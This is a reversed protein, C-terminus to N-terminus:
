KTGTKKIANVLLNIDYDFLSFYDTIEKVGGVSTHEQALSARHSGDLVHGERELSSLCESQDPFRAAALRGDPACDDVDKAGHTIADLDRAPHQVV